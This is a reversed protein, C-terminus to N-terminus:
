FERYRLEAGKAKWEKNELVVGQNAYELLRLLAKQDELREYEQPTNNIMENTVLLIFKSRARSVMVNLRNPNYLFESESNIIDTEGAVFSSIIIEREQGQYKDVTDVSSRIINEIEKKNMGKTDVLENIENEFEKIIQNQVLVRQATHTVVIGLAKTFFQDLNELGYYINGEVYLKKNWIYRVINSIQEVEFLNIKGSKGDNYRIISIPQNPNLIKYNLDDEDQKEVFSIKRNANNSNAEYEDSYGVIYKIAEVIIKNSRRNSKLAKLLSKFREDKDVYKEIYYSLISGFIEEEAKDLRVQLIPDLQKHDGALLLKTNEGYRLISPIFHAIDMQSAEDIIIFDFGDERLEELLATKEKKTTKTGKVFFRHMQQPTCTIIRYKVDRKLVSITGMSDRTDINEIYNNYGDLINEKREYKNRDESVIRKININNKIDEVIDSTNLNKNVLEDIINYTADYGGVLIIRIEKDKNKMIYYLILKAITYTKGTGPPGWLLSLRSNIANAIAEVKDLEIEGDFAKNINAIEEAMLEDDIISPLLNEILDIANKNNDIESLCNKLNQLWFDKHCYELIVNEKFNFNYISRNELYKVIENVDKKIEIVIYPNLENRNFAKITIEGNMINKYSYLSENTQDTKRSAFFKNSIKKYIDNDSIYIYNEKLNENNTFSKYIYESKDSPYM